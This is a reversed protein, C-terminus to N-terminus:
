SFLSPNRIHGLRQTEWLECSTLVGLLHWNGRWGWCFLHKRRGRFLGWSVSSRICLFPASSPCLSIQGLGADHQWAQMWKGRGTNSGLLKVRM